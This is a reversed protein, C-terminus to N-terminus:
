LNDCKMNIHFEHKFAWGLSWNVWLHIWYHLGYVHGLQRVHGLCKWISQKNESMHVCKINIIQLYFHLSILQKTLLVVVQYHIPTKLWFLLLVMFCPKNGRNFWLYMDLGDDVLCMPLYLKLQNHKSKSLVKLVWNISREKNFPLNERFVKDINCLNGYINYPLCWELGVFTPMHTKLQHFPQPWNM